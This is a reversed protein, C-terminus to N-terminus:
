SHTSYNPAEKTIQIDHPHSELLGANTIQVFKAKEHLLEITKCGCYGMGSRIGGVLQFVSDAVSGKYPVRGEVGEPVLKKAGEQFYRDKSGNAMAALSGMGRYVKFSRGQYIEVEGPAEECGALQHRSEMMRQLYTICYLVLLANITNYGILGEKLAPLILDVPMMYIVVVVVSAISMVLNLPKKMSLLGIIIAFVVALKILSLVEPNM